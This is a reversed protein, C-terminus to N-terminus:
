AQFQFLQSTSVYEVLLGTLPAGHHLDEVKEQVGAIVDEGVLGGM